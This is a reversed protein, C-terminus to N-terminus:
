PELGVNNTWHMCRDDDCTNEHVPLTYMCTISINCKVIAQPSLLIHTNLQIFYIYM